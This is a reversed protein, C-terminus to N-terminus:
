TVYSWVVFLTAKEYLNLRSGKGGGGRGGGNGHRMPVAVEEMPEVGEKATVM